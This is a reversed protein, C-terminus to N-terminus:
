NNTKKDTLLTAMSSCLCDVSLSAELAEIKKNNAEIRYDIIKLQSDILKDLNLHQIAERQFTHLILKREELYEILTKELGRVHEEDEKTEIKMLILEGILDYPDVNTSAM